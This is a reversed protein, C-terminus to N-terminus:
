TFSDHSGWISDDGTLDLQRSTEAPAAIRITFRTAPLVDAVIDGWEIVTIVSPDSVTEALEDKMIGADTLRYFDYHALRLGTPADYVRSINFTPSLIAEEIGMGVALGKVFTTKGAGIDGILEIIEGGKVRRGVREGFARMEAESHVEIIM